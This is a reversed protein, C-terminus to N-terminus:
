PTPPERPEGEVTDTAPLPRYLNGTTPPAPPAKEMQVWHYLNASLRETLDPFLHHSIYGLRGKWGVPMEERPHLAAHLIVNVPKSPADLLLSRAEHGSYNATQNFFPTDTAWPLVTAVAIDEYGDLRLEENLARGLGLVAHKSASYSAQYALPIESELSGINVLTGHGQRKFQQLAVHSGYIVGMLNVDILRAHDALPIEEFTGIAGVGANNIWVDVRGFRALAAAMLAQVQAPEGVDTPVVLPTGGRAQVDAALARLAATGRAALVVRARQPALTLAVGRGMGSSAGTIVYVRGANKQADSRSLPSTACGNLLLLLLPLLGALWRPLPVVM